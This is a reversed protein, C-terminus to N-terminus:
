RRRLLVVTDTLDTLEGHHMATRERTECVLILWDDASFLATIEAPTYFRDPSRHQVASALDGGPHHGVVLLHGGTAVADGLNRMFRTRPPDTVQFFQASVLDFPAAPLPEDVLDAEVFTIDTGASAAHVRARELAVCSIDTATVQWGHRALWVADAGEGCGVDLATGPALRSAETLLQANPEGSWVNPREEYM